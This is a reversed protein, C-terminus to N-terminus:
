GSILSPPSLRVDLTKECWRAVALLKAEALWSGVLQIGLPLGSGSLGSPLAIAPLGAATWSRQFVPSGTTTLDRPAASPTAPTVIADVEGLLDRLPHRFELLTRRARAYEAGSVQLGGEISERILPPYREPGANFEREHFAAIETDFIVRSARAFRPFDDPLNVEDMSAGAEALRAVVQEFHSKTEDDSRERFFGRVVGIRPPEAFDGLHDLYDEAPHLVSAPDRPDHGAMAQLMIAADEVSRVLIGVTDFSWALPIVGFLSLRGYTPKLGVIGNYAAPRLTSGGTQSGLAAPCMGTAVAVASGSSSGGPTHEPNWPNITPSPDGDAYPTTVTKGLMVAGAQKLKEVCTADYTPVFDAFVESCATTKIGATYYIDKIGIPIGHLPGQPGRQELQRQSDEAAKIAAEPDLTVWAKLRPELAEIRALVSEMLQVPSLEGQAIKRAAEAVTLQFPQM